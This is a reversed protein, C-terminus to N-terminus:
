PFFVDIITSYSFGRGGGMVWKPFSNIKEEITEFSKTVVLLIISHNVPIDLVASRPLTTLLKIVDKTDSHTRLKSCVFCIFKTISNARKATSPQATLSPLSLFTYSFLCKRQLHLTSSESAFTDLLFSCALDQLSLHSLAEKITGEPDIRLVQGRSMKHHDPFHM